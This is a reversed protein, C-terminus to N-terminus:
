LKVKKNEADYLPKLSALAPYRTGAIAVEWTWLVRHQREPPLVSLVARRFRPGDATLYFTFLLVTMDKGGAALWQQLQVARGAAERFTHDYGHVFILADGKKLMEARVEEFIAKSGLKSKAADEGSLAEPALAIKAKGVFDDLDKKYLDKGTFSVKGFRLEDINPHFEEGVEGDSGDKLVRRNTAFYIDQAM